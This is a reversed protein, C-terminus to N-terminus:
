NQNNIENRNKSLEGNNLKERLLELPIEVIQPGAAFSAVQYPAFSLVLTSDTINWAEFNEVLPAAGEKIWDDDTLPYEDQSSLTKLRDIAEDSILKLYGKKNKFLDALRIDKGDLLDYNMVSYFSNGHAGGSYYYHLYRISIISDAKFIEPEIQYTYEMFENYGYEQIEEYGPMFEKIFIKFLSDNETKIMNNFSKLEKGARTFVPYINKGKLHLSDIDIVTSDLTYEVPALLPNISEPNDDNSENCSTILIIPLAFFIILKLLNM